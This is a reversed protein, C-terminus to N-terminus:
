SPKNHKIIIKYSTQFFDFETQLKQFKQLNLQAICIYFLLILQEQLKFSTCQSKM